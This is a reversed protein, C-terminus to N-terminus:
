TKRVRAVLAVLGGGDPGQHEAGGSVFIRTDGFVSAAIAGVAARIHRQANIDGDNLMTHPQGRILGDRSPECKVLVAAIREADTGDIAPDATLGADRAVAVFGDIDLADALPRHAIIHDGSWRPSLGLVVVELGKLEVGASTSAVSSFVSFDGLLAQESLRAEPVEGLARAVGFASAARSYDMSSPPSSAKLPSGAARAQAIVESTLCPAKVQVFHVASADDIEANRMAERVAEAALAIQSESGIEHPDLPRSISTGIALRPAADAAPAVSTSTVCWLTVHPTLVGEVGGSFVFPVRALIESRNRKTRAALLDALALTLFGRTHDNVLGNGPTKGIAAVVSGPDFVGADIAAAVASVDGPNTITFRHVSAQRLTM